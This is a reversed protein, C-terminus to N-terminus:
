WWKWPPVLRRNLRRGKAGLSSLTAGLDPDVEVIPHGHDQRSLVFSVVTAFIGDGPRQQHRYVIHPIAGHEDNVKAEVPTNMPHSSLAIRIPAVPHLGSSRVIQEIMAVTLYLTTKTRYNCAAPCTSSQPSSSSATM